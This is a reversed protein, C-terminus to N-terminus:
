VRGLENVTKNLTEDIAHLVKQNSEFERAVQIMKVMENAINVNSGELYGQYIEIGEAFEGQGIFITDGRKEFNDMDINATAIRINSNNVFGLRSVTFDDSSIFISTEQNNEDIGVVPYGEISVLLNESNIGFNGNRTYGYQGDGLDVVFFGDEAIAFDTNMDTMEFPGQEFSTYAGDIRNGFVYDGLPRRKDQNRGATYNVMEHSEITSQVLSQYKYGPTNVNSINSGLNEQKKQLVNM